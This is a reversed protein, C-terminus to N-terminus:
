EALGEQQKLYRYAPWSVSLENAAALLDPVFSLLESEGLRYAPGAISV